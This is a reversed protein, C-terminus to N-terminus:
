ESAPFLLEGSYIKEEKEDNRILLAGDKEVGTIRATICESDGGIGKRISLFEGKMFLRNNIERLIDKSRLLAHFYRLYESLIQKRSVTVDSIESISVAKERTFRSFETNGCNIGTGTIFVGHKSECLTGSVKKGHILVDNPWKLESKIGFMKELSLSVSLGLILPLLLATVPIDGADLIMSFLLDEDKEAEWIREPFRGRGKSQYGAWIVTGSQYRGRIMERALDMTSGTKEIYYVPASHFPNRIDGIRQM